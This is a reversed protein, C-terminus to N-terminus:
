VSFWQSHVWDLNNASGPHKYLLSVIADPCVECWTWQKGESAATLTKRYEPYVVTKSYDAPLENVM